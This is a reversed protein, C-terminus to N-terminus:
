KQHKNQRVPAQITSLNSATTTSQASPSDREDKENESAENQNYTLYRLCCPLDDALYLKWITEIRYLFSSGTLKKMIHKKNKQRVVFNTKKIWEKQDNRM